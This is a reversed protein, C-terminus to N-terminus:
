SLTLCTNGVQPAATLCRVVCGKKEQLVGHRSAIQLVLPGFQGEDQFRELSFFEESSPLCFAHEWHM